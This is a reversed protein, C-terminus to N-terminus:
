RAFLEHEVTRRAALADLHTAVTDAGPDKSAALVERGSNVASEGMSILARAAADSERADDARLSAAIDPVLATMGRVAAIRFLCSRARPDKTALAAKVEDVT